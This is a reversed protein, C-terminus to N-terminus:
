TQTYLTRDYTCRSFMDLISILIQIGYHSTECGEYNCKLEIDTISWDHKEALEQLINKLKSKRSFVHSKEDCANCIINLSM